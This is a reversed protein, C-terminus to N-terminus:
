MGYILTWHPSGGGKMCPENNKDRDYCCLVLHGKSLERTVDRVSGMEMIEFCLRTHQSYARQALSLLNRIDLMEGQKTYGQSKALSLLHDPDALTNTATTKDGDDNKRISHWSM